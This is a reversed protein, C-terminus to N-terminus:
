RNISVNTEFTLKVPCHDSITRMYRQIATTSQQSNNLNCPGFVEPAVVTRAEDSIWFRDFKNKFETDNFTYRNQNEIESLNLGAATFADQFLVAEGEQTNFDGLMLIPVGHVHRNVYNALSEIQTQRIEAGEPAAKLHVALIYALTEGALTKVVGHVAPRYRGMAVSEITYNNDIRLKEFKLNPKVCIVVHQHKPDPNNYSVCNRSSGLVNTTLRDVDVIEEFAIVDADSLHRDIFLKLSQDRTETDAENDPNGNLGYWAINFTAVTLPRSIAPSSCLLSIGLGLQAVYLRRM